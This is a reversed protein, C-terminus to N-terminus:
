MRLHLYYMGFTAQQAKLLNSKMMEVPLSSAPSSRLSSGREACKNLSMQRHNRLAEDLISQALVAPRPDVNWSWSCM